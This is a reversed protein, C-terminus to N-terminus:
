PQFRGQPPLEWKVKSTGPTQGLCTPCSQRRDKSGRQVRAQSPASGRLGRGSEMLRPSSPPLEAGAALSTTLVLGAASLRRPAGAARQAGHRPRLPM